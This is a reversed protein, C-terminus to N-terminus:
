LVLQQRSAKYLTRTLITKFLSGCNVENLSVITHIFAPGWDDNRYAM